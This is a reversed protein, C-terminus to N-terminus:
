GWILTESMGMAELDPERLKQDPEWALYFEDLQPPAVSTGSLMCHVQGRHHIQHQILHLFTRDFREIQVNDGRILEVSRTAGDDKVQLCTSIFRRDIKRQEEVLSVMDPCPIRDDFASLGMCQGEMASVYFWDVILIHNLTAIITGFFGDREKTLENNSLLSCAAGLRHNAWANNYAQVRLLRNM